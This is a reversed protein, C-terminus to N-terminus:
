RRRRRMSRLDSTPLAPSEVNHVRTDAIHDMVKQHLTAMAINLEVLSKGVTKLFWGIGGLGALLGAELLTHVVETDIM